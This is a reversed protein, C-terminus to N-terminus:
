GRIIANVEDFVGLSKAIQEAQSASLEGRQYQAVIQMAISTKSSAPKVTNASATSAATAAPARSAHGQLADPTGASAAPIGTWLAIYEPTYRAWELIKRTEPTVVGNEMQEVAVNVEAASYLPKESGGSSATKQQALYTNLNNEFEQQKANAATTQKWNEQSQNAQRITEALQDRQLAQQAQQAAVQAALSQETNYQGMQDAYKQYNYLENQLSMNASDAYQQYNYLEGQYDLNAQNLASASLASDIRVAEDYLAAALQANGEAEAQAIRSAYELAVMTRQREIETNAATEQQGLDGLQQQLAANGAAYQGAAAGSSLGRAAAMENNAQQLLDAQSQATNRAGYYMPAIKAQEADLQMGSLQQANRLAELNAETQAAYLDKIYQSQDTPTPLTPVQYNSAYPSPATYSSSYAAPKSSSSSSSSSSGSSAATGGNGNLPIYQNGSNGGSYDYKARTAEAAEHYEQKLKPDSTNEYEYKLANVYRQDDVSMIADNKSATSAAM